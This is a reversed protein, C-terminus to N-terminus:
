QRIRTLVVAQERPEVRQLELPQSTAKGSSSTGLWTLTKTDKMWAEAREDLDDRHSGTFVEAVKPCTSFILDSLTARPSLALFHVDHTCAKTTSITLNYANPNGRDDRLKLLVSADLNAPEESVVIGALNTLQPGQNLGSLVAAVGNVVDSHSKEAGAPPAVVEGATAHLESALRALAAPRSNRPTSDSLDAEDKAAKQRDDENGSGFFYHRLIAGYGTDLGGISEIAAHLREILENARAMPEAGPDDGPMQAPFGFKRVREVDLAGSGKRVPGRLAKLYAILPQDNDLM